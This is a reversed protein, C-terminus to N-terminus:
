VHERGKRSYWRLNKKINSAIQKLEVCEAASLTDKESKPYALVLYLTEFDEIDIYIVRLGGSKGRKPLAFRMKRFGGTQSLVDGCKPDRLLEAQLIRLNEDSLSLEKWSADFWETMVFERKM